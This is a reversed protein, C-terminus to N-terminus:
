EDFYVQCNVTGTTTPSLARVALGNVNVAPWTLPQDFFV